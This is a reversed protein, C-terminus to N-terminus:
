QKDYVMMTKTKMGKDDTMETTVTLMKGDKSVARRLTGVQKGAKKLIFDATSADTQKASLADFASSGMTPYDKGDLHYTTSNNTAKGDKDVMKIDVSIGKPGQSYTRTESGTAPGHADMSKAANLKWTGLIPDADAAVAVAASGIALLTGLFLSSIFRSM